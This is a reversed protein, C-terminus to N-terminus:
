DFTLPGVPPIDKPANRGSPIKEYLYTFLSLTHTLPTCFGESFKKQMAPDPKPLGSSSKGQEPAEKTKLMSSLYFISGAILLPVGVLGLILGTVILRGATKFNGQINESKAQEVKGKLLKEQLMETQMDMKERETLPVATTIEYDSILTKENNKPIQEEPSLEYPANPDVPWSDLWATDRTYMLPDTSVDKESGEPMNSKPHTMKNWIADMKVKIPSWFSQGGSTIGGTTM